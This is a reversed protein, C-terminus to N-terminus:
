REAIGWMFRLKELGFRFCCDCLDNLWKRLM